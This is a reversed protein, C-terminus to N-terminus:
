RGQHFFVADAEAIDSKEDTKIKRGAEGKRQRAAFDSAAKAVLAHNQEAEGQHNRAAERHHERRAPFPLNGPADNGTDAAHQEVHQHRFHHRVPEGALFDGGRHRDEDIGPRRPDRQTQKHQRREGGCLADCTGQQQGRCEARQSKYQECRQITRRNLGSGSGGGSWSGM